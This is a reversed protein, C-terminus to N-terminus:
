VPTVGSINMAEATALYSQPDVISTSGRLSCEGAGHKVHGLTGAGIVLMWRGANEKFKSTHVMVGKFKEQVVVGIGRHSVAQLLISRHLGEWPFGSHTADGRDGLRINRQGSPVGKRYRRAWYSM